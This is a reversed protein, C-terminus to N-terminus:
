AGVVVGRRHTARLALSHVILASAAIAIKADRSPKFVQGFCACEDEPVVLSRVIIALLLVIGVCLASQRSRAAVIGIAIADEVLALIVSYTAPLVAGLLKLEEPGSLQLTATSVWFVSCTICLAQAASPGRIMPLCVQISQAQMREAFHLKRHQLTVYRDYRSDKPVQLM